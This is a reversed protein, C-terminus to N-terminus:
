KIRKEVPQYKLDMKYNNPNHKVQEYYQLFKNHVGTLQNVGMRLISEMLEKPINNEGVAIIIDNIRDILNMKNQKFINGKQKKKLLEKKERKKKLNQQFKESFKM